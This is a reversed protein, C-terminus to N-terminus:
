SFAVLWFNKKQKSQYKAIKLQTLQSKWLKQGRRGPFVRRYTRAPFERFFFILLAFKLSTPSVCLQHLNCEIRSRSRWHRMKDEDVPTRATYLFRVKIEQKSKILTGHRQIKGDCRKCICDRLDFRSPTFSEMLTNIRRRRLSIFYLFFYSFTSYFADLVPAPLSHLSGHPLKRTYLRIPLLLIKPWSSAAPAAPRARHYFFAVFEEYKIIKGTKARPCKGVGPVTARAKEAPFPIWVSAM